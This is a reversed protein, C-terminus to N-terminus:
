IIENFYHMIRQELWYIPRWPFKGMVFGVHGGKELVELTVHASVEQPSPISSLTTFPDDEAHLILTPMQIKDLYQRSSSQAYYEEANKFGHLPATIANDFELFNKLRNINSFSIPAPINKFKQRHARVLARILHWQYLKSFGKSLSEVSRKLEFPVSVAVSATLLDKEGSEGLWKLLVNGGLSYGM